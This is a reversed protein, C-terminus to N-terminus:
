LFYVSKVNSIVGFTIYDCFIENATNMKFQLGYM